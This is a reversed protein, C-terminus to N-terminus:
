QFGTMYLFLVGNLEYQRLFKEQLLIGMDSYNCIMLSFNCIVYSYNSPTYSYNSPTYSYNSLM